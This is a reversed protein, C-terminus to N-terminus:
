KKEIIHVDMQEFPIVIGNKDFAHKVDERITFFVDWYDVSKCWLWASLDISSAAHDSVFVNPAPDDLIKENSKAVSLIADKAKAIDETYSISFTFDVRRKSEASYNTIHNKTIDSNPVIVRKNDLTTLITNMFGIENICGSVGAVEVYDGTKFPHNILIQIGSVFQSVSDQLGLAIAVGAAGLTAWLTSVNFFMSLANLLFGIQIAFRVLRAIFHYVAYDVHRRAMAKELLVFVIKSVLYGIVVVVVALTLTPLKAQFRNWLDLEEWWSSLTNVIQKPEEFQGSNDLFPSSMTTPATTSTSAAADSVGSTVGPLLGSLLFNLM